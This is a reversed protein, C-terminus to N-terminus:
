KDLFTQVEPHSYNLFELFVTCKYRRNNSLNIQSTDHLANSLRQTVLSPLDGNRCTEIKRCAHSTIQGFMDRSHCTPAKQQVLLQDKDFIEWWPELERAVMRWQWCKLDLSEGGKEDWDFVLKSPKTRLAKLSLIMAVPWETWSGDPFCIYHLVCSSQVLNWVHMCMTCVCRRHSRQGHCLFVVPVCNAQLAVFLNLVM